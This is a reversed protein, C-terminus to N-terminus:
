FGIFWAWKMSKVGCMYFEEGKKKAFLFFLIIGFVGHYIRNNEAKALLVM